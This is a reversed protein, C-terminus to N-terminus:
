RAMDEKLKEVTVQLEGITQAFVILYAVTLDNSQVVTSFFLKNSCVHYVAQALMLDLAAVVLAKAIICHQVFPWLLCCTVITTNVVLSFVNFM